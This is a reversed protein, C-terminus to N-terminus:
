ERNVEEAKTIANHLLLETEGSLGDAICLDTVAAKCAELLAADAQIGLTYAAFCKLWHSAPASIIAGEPTLLRVTDDGRPPGQQPGWGPPLAKADRIDSM